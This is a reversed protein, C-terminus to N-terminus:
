RAGARPLVGLPAYPGFLEARERRVSTLCDACKTVFWWGGESLVRYSRLREADCAPCAGAADVRDVEVTPTVPRPYAHRPPELGFDAATATRELNPPASTRM